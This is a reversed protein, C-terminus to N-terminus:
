RWDEGSAALKVTVDVRAFCGCPDTRLVRAQVLTDLVRVCIDERLGFLRKAQALTLRLGPMEDYEVRIRRVCSARTVGDRREGRGPKRRDPKLQLAPTRPRAWGTTTQPLERRVRNEHRSTDPM